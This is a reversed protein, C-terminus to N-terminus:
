LNTLSMSFFRVAQVCSPYANQRQSTSWLLTGMGVSLGRFSGSLLEFELQERTKTKRIKPGHGDKRAQSSLFKSGLGM